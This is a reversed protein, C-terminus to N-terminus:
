GSNHDLANLHVRDAREAEVSARVAPGRTAGFSFSLMCAMGVLAGITLVSALSGWGAVVAAVLSGTLLGVLNLEPSRRGYRYGTTLGAIGAVSGAMLGLTLLAGGGGGPLGVVTM